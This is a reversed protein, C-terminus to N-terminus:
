IKIEVTYKKIIDCPRYSMKSIRLNEDGADDERNVYIIDEGMNQKVFENVIVQYAGRYEADAKEIHVFLTDNMIEGIAFGAVSGDIYLVIGTQGYIDYNELIEIVKKAEEELAPSNKHRTDIYKEFFAHIDGINKANIQEINSNLFVKKFYNIHNRQGHYKNGTLDALDSAKYLYDFWDYEFTKVINKYLEEIIAVDEDAALCIVMQIKNEKCYREIQYLSDKVDDATKGLPIAFATIDDPIKAKFILNEKYMAYETNFLDRWIFTGGVTNDCAKSRALNFFPRIMEIDKLELKKFILM